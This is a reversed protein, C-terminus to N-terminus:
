QTHDRVWEVYPGHSKETDVPLVLIEPLDYPHLEMIRQRTAAVGEKGVKAQLTVEQDHCLEGEWEYVSTVPTLTVCAARGEKVLTEALTAAHDPPINSLLLYM